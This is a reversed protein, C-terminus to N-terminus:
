TVRLRRSRWFLFIYTWVAFFLFAGVLAAIVDYWHFLVWSKADPPFLFRYLRLGWTLPFGIVEVWWPRPTITGNVFKDEPAISLIALNIIPLLVGGICALLIRKTITM